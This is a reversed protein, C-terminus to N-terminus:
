ELDLLPNPTEEPEFVDEEALELLADTPADYPIFNADQLSRVTSAANDYKNILQFQSKKVQPSNPDLALYALAQRVKM